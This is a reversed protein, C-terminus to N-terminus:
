LLTPEQSAGRRGRGRASKAKGGASREERIRALLVDAPEDNPDQPALEGRFTQSLIAQDLRGILRRASEEEAVLRGVWKITQEIRRALEVQKADLM